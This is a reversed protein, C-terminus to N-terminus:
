EGFTAHSALAKFREFERGMKRVLFLMTETEGRKGASEIELATDRLRQAGINASAGKISHAQRVAVSMDNKRLASELKEMQIPLDEVYGMLIDRCLDEDGELRHLLSTGDFIEKESEPAPAEPPEPPELRLTGSSQREIADALEKPQIPKSVYDDMGAALCRERDGEMAHATMAIIPIRPNRVRSQPDRITQTAEFGDMEPMQVDMLVLDYSKRELAEVAEAGNSVVDARYGLKGLMGLAVKQNVINDEAVLIRFRGKQNEALTHRTILSPAPATVGASRAGVATAIADYLQSRKVPKTLYAGFGIERLRAADGRQGVSTLLVLITSALNPDGKIIKGLTEGDMEPMHMDLIAVGFPRKQSAAETLKEIAQKGDVAEEYVCGWSGLYGTFVKRNTANDDVVLIRQGRIDEPIVIEAERGEPQKELNVTFWFMSGKGEASELRIRGNMAEVLQRSIALGLGTGGYKRTTSADVQTFPQFLSSVRDEPIGIGTDFVSFRVRVHTDTEEEIGVRIFVEGKETLKIANGALNVLIQRLRGPDGRLLSPLEPAVWCVFELGKESAKVALTDVLNEVTVRIDFDVSDLELKGAEIKSFDLIDNILGLLADSSTRILEAYDHQEPTLKTDLLLTTMGVVGNLPTRIEHSMNALFQTKAVNAIEAALAMRNADAIAQELQGNLQLLDRNATEAALKAEQLAQEMKKRETIDRAIAAVRDTKGEEGQIRVGRAWVWRISGDPRVIRFEMNYEARGQLFAELTLYVKQRDEEHVAELWKRHDKYAEERKLGWVQEFSPSLYLIRRPREFTALFFVDQINEALETFRKESEELAREVKKQKTNDRVIGQFAVPRSSDDRIVVWKDHMWRVSGDEDLFRYEIEGGPCGPVLSAQAAKRVKDRDDPHIRMLVTKRSVIRGHEKDDIGFLDAFKKNWLVFETSIIDYQFIGDQSQEVITKFGDPISNREKHESDVKGSEYRLNTPYENAEM